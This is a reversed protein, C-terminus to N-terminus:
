GNLHELIELDQFTQIDNDRNKDFYTRYKKINMQESIEKPTLLRKPKPVVPTAILFDFDNMEETWPIQLFGNKDIVPIENDDIRYQLHDFTESYKQYLNRWWNRVVDANRKDKTDINPNVLLGVTGWSKNISPIGIPEFGEAAGLAFAQRELMRANKIEDKFGLIFAQGQQTSSNNSFIMTYTDSRTSSQRGYRIPVSVLRKTAVNELNLTKWKHRIPTDEWLLSGIIIVGGKFNM